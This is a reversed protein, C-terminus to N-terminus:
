EESEEEESEKKTEKEEKKEKLTLEGKKKLSLLILAAVIVVIVVMLAILTYPGLGIEEGPKLINCSASARGTTEGGPFTDVPNNSTVEVLFYYDGYDDFTFSTSESSSNGEWINQIYKTGIIDAESFTTDRGAYFKVTLFGSINFAEDGTNSVAVTITYTKGKEPSSPVDLTIVFDGRGEIAIFGWSYVKDLYNGPDSKDTANTNVTATYNMNPTLNADPTFMMTDKDENWTITGAIKTSNGEEFLGFADVAQVAGIGVSAPNMEESFVVAIVETTTIYTDDGTYTIIYPATSDIEFNGSTDEAESLVNDTVNVIVQAIKSDTDSPFTWSYTCKKEEDVTITNNIVTVNGDVSYYSINVSYPAEGGAIEYVIDHPSGGTWVSTSNPSIVSVGVGVATTFSWSYVSALYNGTDSVDKAAITVNCIYTEGKEFPDHEVKMTADDIWSITHSVDPSIEFASSSLPSMGEDFHLTIDKKISVKTAGDTPSVWDIEPATSDITFTSSKDSAPTNAYDTVNIRVVVKDSDSKPVPWDYPYDTVEENHTIEDIGTFTGEAGSATSYSMVVNYPASGGIITYSIDHSSGGTWIDGVVPSNLTVSLEESSALLSKGYTPYNGKAIPAVSYHYVVDSLVNTDNYFYHTANHYTANEIRETGNRYVAFGITNNANPTETGGNSALVPNTFKLISINIWTDGKAYVIPTPIPEWETPMADGRYTINGYIDEKETFTFNTIFVYHTNDGDVAEGICVGEKGVDPDRWGSDFRFTDYEDNNSGVDASGNDVEPEVTGDVSYVTINICSWDNTVDDWIEVGGADFVTGSIPYRLGPKAGDSSVDTVLFMTAILMGVLVTSLMKRMM